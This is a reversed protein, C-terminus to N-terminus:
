RSTNAQSLKPRLHYLGRQFLNRLRFAIGAGLLKCVSQAYMEPDFHRSRGQVGIPIIPHLIEIPHSQVPKAQKEFNRRPQQNLVNIKIGQGPMATSLCLM